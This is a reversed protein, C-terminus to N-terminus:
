SIRSDGEHTQRRSSQYLLTQGSTERDDREDFM